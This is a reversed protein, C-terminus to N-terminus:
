GTVSSRSEGKAPCLLMALKPTSSPASMSAQKGTKEGHGLASDATPRCRRWGRCRGTRRILICLSTLKHASHDIFGIKGMTGVAGEGDADLHFTGLAVACTHHCCILIHYAIGTADTGRAECFTSLVALLHNKQKPTLTRGYDILGFLCCM